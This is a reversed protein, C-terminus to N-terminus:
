TSCYQPFFRCAINNLESGAGSPSLQKAQFRSLTIFGFTEVVSILKGLRLEIFHRGQHWDIPLGAFEQTNNGPPRRSRFGLLDISESLFNAIPIRQESHSLLM